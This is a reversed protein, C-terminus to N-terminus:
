YFLLLFHALHTKEAVRLGLNQFRLTTCTLAAVLCASKIKKGREGDVLAKPHRTRRRLTPM